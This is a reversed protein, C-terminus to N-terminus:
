DARAKYYSAQLKDWALIVNQKASDWTDASASGLASVKQKYDAEDNKLQEMAAKRTASAKAESYSTRLSQVQEDMKSTMAKANATFDDRKDWTSAKVKDWGRAMADKTDEYASTAANTVKNQDQKNCATITALGVVSLALAAAAPFSFRDLISKMPTHHAKV